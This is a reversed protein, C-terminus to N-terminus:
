IKVSAQKPTNYRYFVIVLIVALLAGLISPGIQSWPQFDRILNGSAASALAFYSSVIKIGHDAAWAKNSWVQRWFNRSLDYLAHTMVFGATGYGLAAPFSATHNGQMQTLLFLGTLIAIVALINDLLLPGSTKITVARIASLYGYTAGYTVMALSPPSRFFIVGIIATFLTVVYLYKYIRGFKVHVASGKQTFMPILGVILLVSGAAVHLFVNLLNITSM